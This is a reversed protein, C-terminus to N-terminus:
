NTSSIYYLRFQADYVEIHTNLAKNSARVNIIKQLSKNM